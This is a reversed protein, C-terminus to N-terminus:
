NPYLMLNPLEVETIELRCLVNESEIKQKANEIREKDWSVMLLISQSESFNKATLRYEIM